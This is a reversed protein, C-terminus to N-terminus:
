QWIELASICNQVHVYLSSEISLVIKAKAKKLKGADAESAATTDTGIEICKELDSLELLSKIAFAWTQYNDSGRLKEITTKNEKDSSAM